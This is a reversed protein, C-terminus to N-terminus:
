FRASVNKKTKIRTMQRTFIRYYIALLIAHSFDGSPDYSVLVLLVSAFLGLLSFISVHVRNRQRRGGRPPGTGNNKNPNALRSSVKAITDEIFLTTMRPKTMSEAM